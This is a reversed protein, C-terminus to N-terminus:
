NLVAAQRRREEEEKKRMIAEIMATTTDLNEKSALMTPILSTTNLDTGMTMEAQRRRTHWPDCHFITHEADDVADGCYWCESSELKGFRKLYAAFCGHGSLAQTLHFNTEGHRRGIWTGINPILAYTWRGNESNEWETQWTDMINAPPVVLEPNRKKKHLNKREKALLNLPAIGTIVALVERSTTCYASAVRLCIRRQM